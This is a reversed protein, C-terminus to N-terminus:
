QVQVAESRPGRNGAADFPEVTYSGAQAQEDRLLAVPTYVDTVKEEGRYVTYGRVGYNDAADEWSLALKKEERLPANLGVVPGPPVTDKKGILFVGMNEELSVEFSVVGATLQHEVPTMGDETVQMVQEVPVWAPVPVSLRTKLPFITYRPQLPIGGVEYNNDLAIAVVADEGNLTRGIAKENEAHLNNLSEGYFCLTRIQEFTKILRQGGLIQPTYKNEFEPGYKFWLIGKAGCMVHAWFQYNSGWILPQRSWVSAALQAWTWMRQPETNQKLLATYDVAEEMVPTHFIGSGPLVNPAFMVYHDMCAIDPINGYENFGANTALNLYSPTDGDNKWYRMTHAAMDTSSKGNLDPEDRVMWAAVDPNGKQDIIGPVNPAKPEGTNMSVMARIHFQENMKANLPWHGGTVACDIGLMRAYAMAEPNKPLDSSWTGISFRAETLRLGAGVYVPNGERTGKLRVAVPALPPLPTDVNLKVIALGSPQLDTAGVVTIASDSGIAHEVENLFLKELQISEAGDNRVYILLQKGDPSPLINGLRLPPTVCRLVTKARAGSATRLEIDASKGQELPGGVAKIAVWGTGGASLSEPWARWWRVDPYAILDQDNIVLSQITEPTSGENRVFIYAVGGKDEPWKEKFKESRTAGHFTSEATITLGTAAQAYLAGLLTM